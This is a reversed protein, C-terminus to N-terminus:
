LKGLVTINVTHEGLGTIETTLNFVIKYTGEDEGMVDKIHLTAQDNRDIAIRPHPEDYFIGRGLITDNGKIGITDYNLTSKNLKKWYIAFQAQSQSLENATLSYQWALSM